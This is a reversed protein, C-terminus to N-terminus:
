EYTVKKYCTRLDAWALRHTMFIWHYFKYSPLASPNYKKVMATM